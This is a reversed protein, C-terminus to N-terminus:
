TGASDKIARAAGRSGRATGGSVSAPALAAECTALAILLKVSSSSVM